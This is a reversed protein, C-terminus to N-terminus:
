LAHVRRGIHLPPWRSYRWEMRTAGRRWKVAKVAENAEVKCTDPSQHVTGAVDMKQDAM